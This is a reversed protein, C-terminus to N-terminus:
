INGFKKRFLLNRSLDIEKDLFTKLKPTTALIYRIKAVEKNIEYKNKKAAKECFVKTQGVEFLSMCIFRQLDNDLLSYISSLADQKSDYDMDFGFNFDVIPCNLEEAIEFDIKKLDGIQSSM